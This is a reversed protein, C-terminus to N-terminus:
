EVFTENESHKSMSEMLFNLWKEQYDLDNWKAHIEQSNGIICKICRLSFDSKNINLYPNFHPEFHMRLFYLHYVKHIFFFGLVLKVEEIDCCYVSLWMRKMSNISKYFVNYHLVPVTTKLINIIITQLRFLFLNIRMRKEDILLFNM